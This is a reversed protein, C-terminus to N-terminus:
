FSCAGATVYAHTPMTFDNDQWLVRAVGIKSAAVELASVDVFSGILQLASPSPPISVIGGHETPETFLDTLLIMGGARPVSYDGQYIFISLSDLGTASCDASSEGPTTKRDNIRIV